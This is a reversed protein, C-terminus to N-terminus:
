WGYVSVAAVSGAANGAGPGSGYIDGLAKGRAQLDQYPVAWFLPTDKPLEGWGRGDLYWPAYHTFAGEIRKEYKLADWLNGCAVVNFPAVPVKPVCANGGPVPTTADAATIPPLKGNAVRTKNVLDRAAAYNGQRYLGEAQLMDIEALTMFPTPGNRAGSGDGNQQWSYFRVFDYNSLGFSQGSFSDNGNPRNVFYRKCATSAATCSTIAFDAQQAARTSGQPFRNDPTAMFFANNNAGREGVPQAIWAAYTGLTDAMGIFFPPMQHWTSFSMFQSRWSNIPGTTTNTTILHDATIGNQADAVVAAWDVAAREAPTRAMNARIRARYSRVLKVFETKSWTTPSPIWSAPIPFANDTTAANTLDIARQFAAYSSDAAGKYGILVGPDEASQGSAVVAVSDHMMAAYGMSLGRLFEAFAKDRNTRGPTGLNLGGAVQTLFTSAVRNVEGMFSYLRYQEGQCTNGPANSNAAGSFPTRANMCNNALSSHNMMSQISAMGQLDTTSGYVGSSWRKYYTGLLAEADNPTGLVRASNGSNPNTVELDTDNCAVAGILAAMAAAGRIITRSIHAM